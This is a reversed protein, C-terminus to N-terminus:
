IFRTLRHEKLVLVDTGSPLHHLQHGTMIPETTVQARKEIPNQLLFRADDKTAQFAMRIVSRACQDCPLRSNYNRVAKTSWQLRRQIYVCADVPASESILGERFQNLRDNGFPERIM